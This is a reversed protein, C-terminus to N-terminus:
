EGKLIKNYEETNNLVEIAKQVTEDTKFSAEILGERYYYRSVIEESIVTKIEDKFKELDKKKDHKVSKELEEIQAQVDDFFKEKEAYEKLEELSKEVKTTYDYEKDGLWTVFNNFDEDTIEFEAPSVISEHDYYYNTAYDFIWGRALLSATIPAIYKREIEIDPDIGGGDYVPRGNATNFAVKLSDPLKGVSGDDNRHSYDIAQICRGSPIYYKATTVKLQSNYALPRTAQVLGKGFTREGILVGRDYDQMVGSVIEAASASRSSTLVVLPIETDVASNLTNYEKNWDSMKGKTSVVESGRPVFVNSVNVAENLLGGPNDRLDLVIKSAGEAKLKKLADKVEKGAETTFDSLKIYGIGDAIMGNWPVNKLTIKERTINIDLPEESNQRKVKVVLGTNAQGKLLKSIDSVNKDSVDIGDIELIEDAVKLGSKQAPFGLYPMIIVNKEHQRGIIAGIGGYQGTTMTRYDEIEDEPIYNTYPDLSELMADIGTKILDNPNVEDVYYTNIEKFLTAFIDLNKAIQFYRDAQDTRTFSFLGLLSVGLVMPLFIKKFTIKM